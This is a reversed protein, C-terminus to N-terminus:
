GSVGRGRRSRPKGLSDDACHRCGATPGLRRPAGRLTDASDIASVPVIRQGSSWYRILQVDQVGSALVDRGAAGGLLGTCSGAVALEDDPIVLDAAAGPALTPDPRGLTRSPNISTQRVAVPLAEERPLGINLVAFRFVQNMTATSGAITGTGAVRAIGDRVDVPLSGLRYAGDAMGSAAMADTMLAVRDPGVGATV